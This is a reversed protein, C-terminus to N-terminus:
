RLLKAFEEVLLHRTRSCAPFMFSHRVNVPRQSRVLPLLDIGSLFVEGLAALAAEFVSLSPRVALSELVAAPDASLWFSPELFFFFHHAAAFCNSPRGHGRCPSGLAPCQRWCSTPRPEVVGAPM